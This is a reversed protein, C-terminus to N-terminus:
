PAVENVRALHYLFFDASWARIGEQERLPLFRQVDGRAATWDIRRIVTELNDQVRRLTVTTHQGAWPGQQHLAHGLLDLDPRTGRAVYWVFDYWDRGKVYPGAVCRSGRISAPRVESLPPALVFLGPKLRLVEGAQCARQVLLARAGDSSDPFLNHIVTETFLGGPPALKFVKETHSKVQSAFKRYDYDTLM